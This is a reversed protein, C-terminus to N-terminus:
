TLTKVPECTNVRRGPTYRTLAVVTSLVRPLATDEKTTVNSCTRCLWVVSNIAGFADLLDRCVAKHIVKGAAVAPTVVETCTTPGFGFFLAVLRKM